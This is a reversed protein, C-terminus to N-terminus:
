RASMSGSSPARAAATEAVHHAALALVGVLAVATTWALRKM